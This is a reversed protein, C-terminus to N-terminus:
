YMLKSLSVITNVNTRKLQYIYLISTDRNYPLLILSDTVIQCVYFQGTDPTCDSESPKNNGSNTTGTPCITCEWGPATETAKTEYTGAPCVLTYM